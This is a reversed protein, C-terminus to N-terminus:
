EVIVKGFLTPHLHDHYAWTGVKTFTFSWSEGPPTGACADFATATPDPCHASLSTGSYLMHTPHMASAVWMNQTSNNQWTVTEGVQIRLENPSFGANTYTVMHAVIMEEVDEEGIVPMGSSVPETAEENPTDGGDTPATAEPGKLLFYGGVVVVLLIIVTVVTRNM